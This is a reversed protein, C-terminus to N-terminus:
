GRGVKGDGEGKRSFIQRGCWIGVEAETTELGSGTAHLPFGHKGAAHLLDNETVGLWQAAESLNM